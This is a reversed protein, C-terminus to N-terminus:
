KRKRGVTTGNPFTWYFWGEQNMKGGHAALDKLMAKFEFNIVDESREYEGKQGEVKTWVIQTPDWRPKEEVKVERIRQRASEVGAEVADLFDTLALLALDEKESL